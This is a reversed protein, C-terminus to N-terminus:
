RVVWTQSRLFNPFSFLFEFNSPCVCVLTWDGRRINTKPLLPWIKHLILYRLNITKDTKSKKVNEWLIKDTITHLVLDKALVEALRKWVEINKKKTIKFDKELRQYLYLHFSNLSLKLNFLTRYASNKISAKPWFSINFFNWSCNTWTKKISKKVLIPSNQSIQIM